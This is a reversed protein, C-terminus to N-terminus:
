AKLVGDAMLAAAKHLLSHHKLSAISPAVLSRYYRVAKSLAEQPSIAYSFRPTFPLLGNM